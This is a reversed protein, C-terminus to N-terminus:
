IVNDSRQTQRHLGCRAEIITRGGRPGHEGNKAPQTPTVHFGSLHFGPIPSQVLLGPEPSKETCGRHGRHRQPTNHESNMLWMSVSSVSTACLLARDLSKTCAWSDCWAPLM